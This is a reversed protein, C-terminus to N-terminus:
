AAVVPHSLPSPMSQAHPGAAGCHAIGSPRPEGLQPVCPAFVHGVAVAGVGHHSLLVAGHHLMSCQSCHAYPNPMTYTPQEASGREM